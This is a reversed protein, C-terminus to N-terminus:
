RSSVEPDYKAVLLSSSIRKWSIPVTKGTLERLYRSGYRKAFNKSIFLRQFDVESGDDTVAEISLTWRLRWTRKGLHSKWVFMSLSKM